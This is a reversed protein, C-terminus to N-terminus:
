PLLNLARPAAKSTFLAGDMDRAWATLQDTEQLRAILEGGPHRRIHVQGASRTATYLQSDTPTEAFPASLFKVADTLTTGEIYVSRGDVVDHNMAFLNTTGDANIEVERSTSSARHMSEFSLGGEERPFIAFAGVDTGLLDTLERAASTAAETPGVGYGDLWGPELAALETIRANAKTPATPTETM